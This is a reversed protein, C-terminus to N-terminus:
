LGNVCHKSHRTRNLQLVPIVSIVNLWLSKKVLSMHPRRRRGHTTLVRIISFPMNRNAERDADGFPIVRHTAYINMQVNWYCVNHHCIM